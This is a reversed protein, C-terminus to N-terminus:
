GTVLEYLGSGYPYQDLFQDFILKQKVITTM